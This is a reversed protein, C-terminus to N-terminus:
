GRMNMLRSKLSYEEDEEPEEDGMVMAKHELDEGKEMDGDLDAGIMEEAKEIAPSEGKVAMIELDPKKRGLRMELDEPTDTMESQLLEMIKEVLEHKDNFM